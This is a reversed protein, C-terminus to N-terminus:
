FGFLHDQVVSFSLQGKVRKHDTPGRHLLHAAILLDTHVDRIIKGPGRMYVCVPSYLWAFVIGDVVASSIWPRV